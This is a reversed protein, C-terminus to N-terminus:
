AFDEGRHRGGGPSAYSRAGGAFGGEPYDLQSLQIADTELRSYYSKVKRTMLAHALLAPIAVVLGLETTVLAESIGSSVAAPDGAGFLTMLQFTAIMGSVTGLLGLLPSVAATVAIAGLWRELRHRTELLCAFLREDRQEVTRAQLSIDLLQAQAGKLERRLGELRAGSEALAHEVRAPLAPLLAPLRLLALSKALAIVVAFCAFALIPIVWVGGKQLHELLSEEAGALALARSLTPDLAAEGRGSDHLRGLAAADSGEFLLAAQPLAFSADALGGSGSQPQWFWQVPGLELFDARSVRGDPLVIDKERWAPYLRAEQEAVYGALRAIAAAPGDDAAAGTGPLAAFSDLLRAQFSRQENWADLRRELQELSLTQEDQLRRLAVAERRLSEIELRAENLRRALAQREGGIEEQLEALAQRSARIEDTLELGVGQLDAGFASGAFLLLGAIVVPSRM